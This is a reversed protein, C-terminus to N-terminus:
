EILIDPELVIRGNQFRVGAQRVWGALTAPGLRLGTDGTASVQNDPRTNNRAGGSRVAELV